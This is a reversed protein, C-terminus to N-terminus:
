VQYCGWILAATSQNLNSKRFSFNWMYNPQNNFPQPFCVFIRHELINIVVVFFMVVLNVMWVQLLFNVILYCVYEYISIFTKFNLKQNTFLDSKCVIHTKIISFNHYIMIESLTFNIRAFKPTTKHFLFFTYSSPEPIAILTTGGHWRM